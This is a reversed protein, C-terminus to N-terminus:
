PRVNASARTARWPRGGFLLTSVVRPSSAPKEFVRTKKTRRRRGRLLLGAPARRGLQERRPGAEGDIDDLQRLRRRRRDLGAGSEAHTRLRCNSILRYAIPNIQGM